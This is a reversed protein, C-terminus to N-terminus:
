VGPPIVGYYSYQFRSDISTFLLSRSILGPSHGRHRDARRASRAPPRRHADGAATRRRRGRRRRHARRAAPDPRDLVTGPGAATPTAAGLVPLRCRRRAGPRARRRVGALPAARMVEETVQPNAVRLNERVTTAFVWEDETHVRVLERRLTPDVSGGLTVTGSTPELLGALTLLLTTKGSGSPGRIVQRAGPALDLGRDRGLDRVVVGTTGAGPTDMLAALRREAAAAEDAHIAATALPGHAEFAALPLMILMGLWTPDGTYTLAGIALLVM